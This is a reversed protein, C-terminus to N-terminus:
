GILKRRATGYFAFRIRTPEINESVDPILKVQFDVFEPITILRDPRLDLEASPFLTHPMFESLHVAPLEYNALIIQMIRSSSLKDWRSLDRTGLVTIRFSSVEFSHMGTPLINPTALNTTAMGASALSRTFINTIDNPKVTLVDYLEQKKLDYFSYNM